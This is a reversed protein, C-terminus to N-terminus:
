EAEIKYGKWHVTHILRKEFDTDLKARLRAINVDVVNTNPKIQYGWAATALEKRSFVKGPEKMLVELLQVERPALKLNQGSRQVIRSSQDLTVDGVRLVRPWRKLARVRVPLEWDAFPRLLFDAAGRELCKVPTDTAGRATIVLVPASCQYQRLPCSGNCAPLHCDLVAAAYSPPSITPCAGRKGDNEANAVPSLRTRSVGSDHAAIARCFQSGEVFEPHCGPAAHAHSSLEPHFGAAQLAQCHSAGPEHNSAVVM